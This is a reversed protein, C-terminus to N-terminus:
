IDEISVKVGESVLHRFIWALEALLVAALVPELSPVVQNLMNPSIVLKLGLFLKAIDQRRTTALISNRLHTRVWSALEM